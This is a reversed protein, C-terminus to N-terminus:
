SQERLAELAIRLVQRARHEARLPTTTPGVFRYAFAACDFELAARHSLQLNAPDRRDKSFLGFEGSLAALRRHIVVSAPNYMDVALPRPWDTLRTTAPAFEFQGVLTLPRESLYNWTAATEPSRQDSPLVWESGLPAGQVNGFCRGHVIGDPNLQPVLCVHTDEMLSSLTPDTLLARAMSLIGWASPESPRTSGVIVIRKSAHREGFELALIARSEVSRGIEVVQALGASNQSLHRLERCCDTYTFHPITALVCTEESALQLTLHVGDDTNCQGPDAELWERSGARRRWYPLRLPLRCWDETFWDRLDVTVELSTAHLGLNAFQVCLNYGGVLLENQTELMEKKPIIRVKLDDAIEAHGQGCEIQTTFVVKHVRDKSGTQTPSSM